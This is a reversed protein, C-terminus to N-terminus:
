AQQGGGYYAWTECLLGWFRHRKRQPVSPSDKFVYLPRESLVSEDGRPVLGRSSGKPAPLLRVPKVKVPLVMLIPPNM